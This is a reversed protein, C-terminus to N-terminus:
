FEEATTHVSFIQHTKLSFAGNKFEEATTHVSFMQHTKLTFNRRKLNAGAYDRLMTENCTKPQHKANKVKRLWSTACCFCKNRISSLQQSFYLAPKRQAVFKRKTARKKDFECSAVCCIQQHQAILQPNQIEYKAAKFLSIFLLVNLRFM